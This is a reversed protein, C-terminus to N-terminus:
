IIDYGDDGEGEIKLNILDMHSLPNVLGHAQGLLFM